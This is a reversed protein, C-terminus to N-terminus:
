FRWTMTGSYTFGGLDIKNGLFDSSDLDGSGTQFKVEGGLMFSGGVPARVGGVVIAGVSTGDAIYQARFISSDTPDVFEGSEAYHWRLGAIGGGIYPQIHATRGTPVYRVIGTVPIIRLKLDQQIESGDDHTVLAYISNVTQQSFGLGVGLEFYKGLGLIYEGNISASGFDGVDFLLPECQFNVDLCRDANLVDGSTRSDQGIPAFYGLSVSFGQDQARVPSAAALMAAAMVGAGILRKM